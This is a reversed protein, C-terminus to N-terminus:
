PDVLTRGGGLQELPEPGLLSNVVHCLSFLLLLGSGRLLFLDDLVRRGLGLRALLDLGLEIVQEVLDVLDELDVGLLEHLRVDLLATLSTSTVRRAPSWRSRAVAGASLRRWRHAEREEGRRVVRARAEGLQKAPGAVEWRQRLGVHTIAERD